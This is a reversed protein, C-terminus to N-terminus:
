ERRRSSGRKLQSALLDILRLTSELAASIRDFGNQDLFEQDVAVYLLTKVVFILGRSSSVMKRFEIADDKGYGNAIKTLVGIASERVEHRLVDDLAWAGEATYQYVLNVMERAEQWAPIDEFKEFDYM